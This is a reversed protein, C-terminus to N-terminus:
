FDAGGLCTVVCGNKSATTSSSPYGSVIKQIDIAIKTEWPTKINDTEPKNVKVVRIDSIRLSYVNGLIISWM